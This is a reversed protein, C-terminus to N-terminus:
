RARRGARIRRLRDDAARVDRDEQRWYHYGCAVEYLVDRLLDSLSVHTFERTLRWVARRLREREAHVVLVDRGRCPLGDDGHLRLLRM